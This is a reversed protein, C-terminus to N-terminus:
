GGSPAGGNIPAYGAALMLRDAQEGYLSLTEALRAVTARSANGTGKEIRNVHATNIGAAKALANQSLGAAERHVRLAAGLGSEVQSSCPANTAGQEETDLLDRLAKIAGRIEVLRVKLTREEEQLQALSAM